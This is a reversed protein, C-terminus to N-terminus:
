ADGLLLPLKSSLAVEINISDPDIKYLVGSHIIAAIFSGNTVYKNFYKEVQHKLGYSTGIEPNITKRKRCLTLWECCVQFQELNNKLAGRKEQFKRKRENSTLKRLSFIGIGSNTLLPEKEIANFLDAQSFVM